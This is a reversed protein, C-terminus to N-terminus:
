MVAFLISEGCYHRPNIWKINVLPLLLMFFELCAFSLLLINNIASTAVSNMVLLEILASLLVNVSAVDAVDSVVDQLAVQVVGAVGVVAHPNQVIVQGSPLAADHM